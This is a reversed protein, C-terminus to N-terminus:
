PALPDPCEEGRPCKVDDNGQGANALMDRPLIGTSWWIPKGTVPDILRPPLAVMRQAGQVAVVSNMVAPQEMPLPAGAARIDGVGGVPERMSVAGVTLMAIVM